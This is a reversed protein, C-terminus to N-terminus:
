STTELERIAVAIERGLDALAQSLAAAQAAPDGTAPVRSARAERYLRRRAGHLGSAEFRAVLAANGDTDIEFREFDVTVQFDPEQAEYWPYFVVSAQGLEASLDLGLIRPIAGDLPEAWRDIPSPVVETPNRRSIIERRDVLYDPLRIPGLGISAGRASPQSVAEGAPVAELLFYRSPDPRPALISCGAHLVLTGIVLALHPSLPTGKM